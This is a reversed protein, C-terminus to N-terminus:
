NQFQDGLIESIADAALKTAGKSKEFLTQAARGMATARDRDALLHRFANALEQAASPDTAVAKIQTIAGAELFEEVMNGFNEMRPGVVIPKGFLAPEMVSHGGIPVLTGGVFAVDAFQYATALEGLTDLLMIRAGPVARSASRRSVTLGHKAALAEVEDAREIHRPALLLRVDAFADGDLLRALASFLAEEEGPHTSGAVIVRGPTATIGLATDLAERQAGSVDKAAVDYKMNGTLRVRSPLAGMHLIRDVDVQDKMLLLRYNELVPALFPRLHRYTRFSKESIRGNVLVIPIGRRKTERLTNPWIETDVIVLITPKITDLVRRVIPPEDVPFFFIGDGAFKGYKERAVRQGGNTITSIVFRADPYRAALEELLPQLSLAEGVSCAHLWITPRGDSLLADPLKGLREALGPFPKKKFAARYAIVPLMLAVWVGLLLSYLAYM